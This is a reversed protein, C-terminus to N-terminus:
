GCSKKPRRLSSERELGLGLGGGNLLGQGTGWRAVGGGRPSHMRHPRGGGEHLHQLGLPPRRGGPCCHRPGRGGCAGGEIGGPTELPLAALHSAGAVVNSANARCQAGRREGRM